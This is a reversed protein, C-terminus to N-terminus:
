APAPMTYTVEVGCVAVDYPSYAGTDHSFAILYPRADAAVAM